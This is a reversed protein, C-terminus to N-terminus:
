RYQSAWSMIDRGHLRLWNEATRWAPDFSAVTHWFCPSHNLHVLHALEHAILYDRVFTPTQVLRWNLSITGQPSCSGWRRRQARISNRHLATLLGHRQAAAHVLPPLEHAALQRLQYEVQVRCDASPDALPGTLDALQWHGSPLFAL